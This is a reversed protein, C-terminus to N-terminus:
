KNILGVYSQRATVVAVCRKLHELEKTDFRVDTLSLAWVATV